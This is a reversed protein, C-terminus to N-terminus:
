ISSGLVPSQFHKQVLTECLQLKEKKRTSWDEQVFLCLVIVVFHLYCFTCCNNQCKISNGTNRSPASCADCNPSCSYHDTKWVFKKSHALCWLPPWDTAEAGEPIEEGPHTQRDCTTKDASGKRWSIDIWTKSRRGGHCQFEKGWQVLLYLIQMSYVKFRMFICLFYCINNNNNLKIWLNVTVQVLQVDLIKNTELEMLTYSGYKASHGPSDCRADGGLVLRKDQVEQIVENQQRSWVDLVSPILYVRQM